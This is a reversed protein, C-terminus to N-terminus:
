VSVLHYNNQYNKCCYERGNEADVGVFLELDPLLVLYVFVLVVNRNRKPLESSKHLILDVSRDLQSAPHQIEGPDDNWMRAAVFNRQFQNPDIKSDRRYRLFVISSAPQRKQGVAGQANTSGISGTLWRSTFISFVLSIRIFLGFGERM